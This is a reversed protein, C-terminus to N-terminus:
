EQFSALYNINLRMGVVIQAQLDSLSLLSHQSDGWHSRGILDEINSPFPAFIAIIASNILNSNFYQPYPVTKNLTAFLGNMPLRIVM